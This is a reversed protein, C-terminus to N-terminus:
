GNSKIIFSFNWIVESISLCTKSFALYTISFEFQSFPSLLLFSSSECFIIPITSFSLRLFPCTKHGIRTASEPKSFDGLKAVKITYKPLSSVRFLNSM